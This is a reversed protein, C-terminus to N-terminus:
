AHITRVRKWTAASVTALVVVNVLLAVIGVNLDTVASPWGPLLKSLTTGTGQVSIVTVEGALIGAAAGATTCRPIEFLSLLLSPLLQTVFSYGLLLLPVIASGAHLTLYVAALALVPVLGRALRAITREDASPVMAGYLNKALITAATMLLMSGPVLATLLGAAGILGV